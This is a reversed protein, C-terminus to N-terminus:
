WSKNPATPQTLGGGIQRLQSETLPQPVSRVTSPTAKQAETSTAPIQPTTERQM